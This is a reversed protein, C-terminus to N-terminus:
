SPSRNETSFYQCTGTFISLLRAKRSAGLLYTSALRPRVRRKNEPAARPSLRTEPGRTDVDRVSLIQHDHMGETQLSFIHLFFFFCALFTATKIATIAHTRYLKVNANVSQQFESSLAETQTRRKGCVSNLNIKCCKLQAHQENKDKGPFHTCTSVVHRNCSPEPKERRPCM